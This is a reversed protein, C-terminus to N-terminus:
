GFGSNDAQMLAKEMWNCPIISLQLELQTCHAHKQKHMCAHMAEYSGLKAYNIM